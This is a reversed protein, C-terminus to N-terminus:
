RSVASASSAAPYASSCRVASRAAAAPNTSSTISGRAVRSRIAQARAVSSRRHALVRKHGDGPGQPLVPRGLGRASHRAVHREAVAEGRAGARGLAEAPRLADGVPQPPSLRCEAVPVERLVSRGARVHEVLEALRELQLGVEHGHDASGVVHQARRPRVWGDVGAAQALDELPEVLGTRPQDDDGGRRGRPPVEDREPRSRAGADLGAHAADVIHGPLDRGLVAHRAQVDRVVLGGRGRCSRWRRGADTWGRAHAPPVRTRRGAERRSRSELRLCPPLLAMFM